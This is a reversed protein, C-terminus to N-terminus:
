MWLLKITFKEMIIFYTLALDNVDKLLVYLRRTIEPVLTEWAAVIVVSLHFDLRQNTFKVRAIRWKVLPSYSVKFYVFGGLAMLASVEFPM